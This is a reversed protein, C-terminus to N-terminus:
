SLNLNSDIRIWDPPVIDIKSGDFFWTKPAIVIKNTNHNLRAAWWHYTSNTIISHNCNAMIILEEFDDISEDYEHFVTNFHIIHM